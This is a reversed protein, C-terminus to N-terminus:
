KVVFYHNFFHNLTKYLLGRFFILLIELGSAGSLSGESSVDLDQKHKETDREVAATANDMM